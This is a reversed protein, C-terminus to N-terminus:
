QLPGALVLGVLLLLGSLLSLLLLGQCHTPSLSRLRCWREQQGTECLDSSTASGGLFWSPKLGDPM